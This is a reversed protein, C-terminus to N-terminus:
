GTSPERYDALSTAGAGAEIVQDLLGRYRRRYDWAIWGTYLMGGFAGFFGALALTFPMWPRADPEQSPDPSEPVPSPSPEKENYVALREPTSPSEGPVALPRPIGPDPLEASPSREEVPPSEYPLPATGIRLRYRKFPGLDTPVDCSLEEGPQLTKLTDPDIQIIYEMGGEPLPQWGGDIGITAAAILLTTACM